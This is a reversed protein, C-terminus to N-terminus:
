RVCTFRWTPVHPPMRFKHDLPGIKEIINKLAQRRIHIYYYECRADRAHDWVQYLFETEALADSLWRQSYNDFWILKENELHNKYRRNLLLLENSIVREPLLLAMQIFPTNEFEKSRAMMIKFDNLFEHDKDFMYRAEREDMIENYIFVLQYINKVNSYDIGEKIPTKRIPPPPEFNPAQNPQAFCSGVLLLWVMVAKALKKGTDM